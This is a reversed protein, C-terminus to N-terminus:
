WDLLFPPSGDELLPAVMRGLVGDDASEHTHTGTYVILSGDNSSTVFGGLNSVAAVSRISGTHERIPSGVSQGTTLDWYRVQFNAPKNNVNEGTSTSVLINENLM